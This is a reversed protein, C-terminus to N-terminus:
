VCALFGRVPGLRDPMFTEPRLMRGAHDCLTTYSSRLVASAHPTALAAILPELLDEHFGKIADRVTEDAGYYDARVLTLQRSLLWPSQQWAQQQAPRGGGPWQHLPVEHVQLQRV